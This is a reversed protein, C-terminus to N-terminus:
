KRKYEIIFAVMATITICLISFSGVAAVIICLIDNTSM